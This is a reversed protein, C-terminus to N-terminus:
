YCLMFPSINRSLSEWCTEMRTKIISLWSKCFFFAREEIEIHNDIMNRKSRSELYCASPKSGVTYVEWTLFFYNYACPSKAVSMCWDMRLLAYLHAAINHPLTRQVTHVTLHTSICWWSGFHWCIRKLKVGGPSDIKSATSINLLGYRKLRLYKSNVLIHTCWRLIFHHITNNCRFTGM